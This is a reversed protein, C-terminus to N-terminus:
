AEKASDVLDLCHSCDFLEAVESIRFFDGSGLNSGPGAPRSDYVSGNHPTSGGGGKNEDKRFKCVTSLILNLFNNSIGPNSRRIEQSSLLQKALQAVVM